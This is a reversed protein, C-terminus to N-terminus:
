LVRAPLLLFIENNMRRITAKRQCQSEHIFFSVKRVRMRQPQTESALQRDNLRSGLTSPTNPQFSSKATSSHPGTTTRFTWFDPRGRRGQHAHTHTHSYVTVACFVAVTPPCSSIAASSRRVFAAAAIRSTSGLLLM